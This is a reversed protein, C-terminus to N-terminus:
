KLEASGFLVTFQKCWVLVYKQSDKATGPVALRLNGNAPTKVIETYDSAKLDNALYLYIDPGPDSKFNELLLFKKGDKDKILKATGSTAHAGNIFTGTSLVVDDADPKVDDDSTANKTCAFALTLSLALLLSKM